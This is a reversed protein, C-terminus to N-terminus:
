RGSGSGPRHPGGPRQPGNEGGGAREFDFSGGGMSVNPGQSM